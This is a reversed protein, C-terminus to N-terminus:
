RFNILYVAFLAINLFIAFLVAAGLLFHTLIRFNKDKYLSALVIFNLLAVILGLLPFFYIRIPNGIWDIGSDVNYHLVLIDGSLNHKIFWAQFWAILQWFIILALYALSPKFNFIARWSTRVKDRSAYFHSYFNSYAM